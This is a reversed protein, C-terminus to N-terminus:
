FQLLYYYYYYCYYCYYYEGLPLIENGQQWYICDRGIDGHPLSLTPAGAMYIYIFYIIFLTYSLFYIRDRGIDGHSFSLTPAGAM